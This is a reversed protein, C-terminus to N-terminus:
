FGPGGARAMANVFGPQLEDATEPDAGRLIQTGDDSVWYPEGNAADVRLFGRVQVPGSARGTRVLGEAIALAKASATM